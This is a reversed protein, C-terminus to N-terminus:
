IETVLSIRVQCWPSLTGAGNRGDGAAGRPPRADDPLRRCRDPRQSQELGIAEAATSVQDIIIRAADHRLNVVGICIRQQWRAPGHGPPPATVADVFAEVAERLTRGEVVLDELATAEAEQSEQPGARAPGALSLCVISAALCWRVM